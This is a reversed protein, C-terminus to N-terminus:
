WDNDKAYGLEVLWGPDHQKFVDKVRPTFARQWGGVQGKRFTTAETRNRIRQVMHLMLQRDIASDAVPEGATLFAAYRLIDSCVAAETTRMEEYRIVLATPCELWGAFMKWRDFLGAYDELGEICALLVAEFDPLARYLAKGSHKFRDDNDSLVHHAQSVLVDRLDRYIFLTGIALKWLLEAFGETYAMHGKVYQGPRISTMAPGWMDLNVMEAKWSTTGYWQRKGAPQAFVSVAQEIMHLGSKPFGCLYLRPALVAPATVPETKTLM